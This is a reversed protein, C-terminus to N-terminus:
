QAWRPPQMCAIAVRGLKGVAHAACGGIHECVLPTARLPHVLRDAAVALVPLGCVAWNPSRKSQSISFCNHSCSRICQQLLRYQPVPGCATLHTLSSPPANCGASERKCHHLGCDQQCQALPRLLPNSIAVSNHWRDSPSRTPTEAGRAAQLRIAGDRAPSHPELQQCATHYLGSYNQCSFHSASVCLQVGTPPTDLLWM